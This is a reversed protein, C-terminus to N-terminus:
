GKCNVNVNVDLHPQPKSNDKNPSKARQPDVKCKTM